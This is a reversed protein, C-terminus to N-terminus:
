NKLKNSVYFTIFYSTSMALSFLILASYINDLFILGVYLSILSVIFTFIDVFLSIHLKQRIVVIYSLPSIVFRLLYTISLIQAYYGADVWKIGFVISFLQPSFITLLLFPVISIALLHKVTSDFVKIINGKELFERNAKEIFVTGVSNSILQVPLGLIRVCLNYIGVTEVGAFKSLFFTPLQSTLRNIFDSPLSYLPFNKYKKSLTLLNKYNVTNDYSLPYKMILSFHLLIAPAVQSVLLGIFLGLANKSLLGFSISAIPVL